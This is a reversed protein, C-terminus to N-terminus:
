EWKIRLSTPYAVYDSETANLYKVDGGSMKIKKLQGQPGPMRQIGKVKEITNKITANAIEAVTLALQVESGYQKFDEKSPTAPLVASVVQDESADGVSTNAIKGVAGLSPSVTQSSQSKDPLVQEVASASARSLITLLMATTPLIDHWTLQSANAGGAKIKAFAAQGIQGAKSTSKSSGVIASKIANAIAHVNERIADFLGNPQTDASHAHDFLHGLTSLFSQSADHEIDLLSIIFAAHAENLVDGVVDIAQCKGVQYQNAKWLKEITSAYFDTAVKKLQENVLIAEAFSTNADFNGQAEKPVDFMASRPVWLSTFDSSDSLAKAGLETKSGFTVVGKSPMFDDTNYLQLRDMDKLLAKKEEPIVLPFHAYISNKRLNHPFANLVLKYFVGGYNIDLDYNSAHFGWNTLNKPTYDVTHFRDSRVLSVADALIARSTTWSACLGSGPVIPKKASEVVIGPYIEVNDPHGYLRKLQTAIKPDPNISEFTTHPAM